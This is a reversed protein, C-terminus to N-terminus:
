CASGFAHISTPEILAGTLLGGGGRHHECVVNASGSLRRARVDLTISCTANSRSLLEPYPGALSSDGGGRCGV